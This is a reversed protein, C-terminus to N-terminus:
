FTPLDTMQAHVRSVRKRDGAEIKNGSVLELPGVDHIEWCLFVLMVQYGMEIGRVM